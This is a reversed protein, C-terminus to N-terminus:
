MDLWKKDLRYVEIEDEGDKILADIFYKNEKLIKVVEVAEGRELTIMGKERTYGHSKLAYNVELDKIPYIVTM